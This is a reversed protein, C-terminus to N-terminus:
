KDNQRESFEKQSSVGLIQAETLGPVLHIIRIFILFFFFYTPTGHLTKAPKLHWGLSNCDWDSLFPKLLPEVPLWYGGGGVCASELLWRMLMFFSVTVGGMWAEWTASTTFFKGALAHAVLSLSNSRQNLFIGQLLAHCGM